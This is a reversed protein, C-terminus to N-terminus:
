QDTCVAYAIADDIRLQDTSHGYSLSFAFANCDQHKYTSATWIWTPGFAQRMAILTSSYLEKYDTDDDWDIKWANCTKGKACCYLNKESEETILTDTGSKYCGFKAIDILSKGQARCWNEAAWWTLKTNSKIVNGLGPIQLSQSPNGISQCIGQLPYNCNWDWGSTNNSNLDCYQDPACADNSNCGPVSYQCSDTMYSLYIHGNSCITCSNDRTSRNIEEPCILMCSGNINEYGQICKCEGEIRESYEPCTKEKEGVYVGIADVGTGRYIAEKRSAGSDGCSFGTLSFLCLVILSALIAEKRQKQFNNAKRM